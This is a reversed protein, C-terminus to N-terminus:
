KNGQQSIAILTEEFNRRTQLWTLVNGTRDKDFDTLMAHGALVRELSGIGCNYGFSVLAAAELLPRGEVAKFLAAADQALLTDAFEQTIAMGKRVNATHGYGITWVGGSDQYAELKCGEFVRIIAASAEALTVNGVSDM